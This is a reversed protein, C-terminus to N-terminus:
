RNKLQLTIQELAQREGVSLAGIGFIGGSTHAIQECYKLLDDASMDDFAEGPHEVMAVILQTAQHFTQGSPRRELWEVLQYDAESGVEIGRSRALNVIATREAASVAGEAWAVQLVPILPLLAITAPTFGLDQLQELMAADRIGTQRELVHREHEAASARRVREFLEDDNNAM